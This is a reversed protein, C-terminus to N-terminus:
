LKLQNTISIESVGDITIQSNGFKYNFQSTREKNFDIDFRSFFIKSNDTSETTTLVMSFTGVSPLSNNELNKEWGLGSFISTIPFEEYKDVTHIGGTHSNSKIADSGNFALSFGLLPAASSNPILNSDFSGIVLLEKNSIDKKESVITYITIIIADKNKNERDFNVPTYRNQKNDWIYNRTTTSAGVIKSGKLIGNWDEVLRVSANPFIETLSKGDLNNYNHHVESNDIITNEQTKDQCGVMLVVIAIVIIKIKIM